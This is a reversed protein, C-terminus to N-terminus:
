RRNRMEIYGPVTHAGLLAILLWTGQCGFIALRLAVSVLSWSLSFRLMKTRGTALATLFHLLAVLPLLPASLEDVALWARGFLRGEFSWGGEVGELRCLYYGWCALAACGLVAGTFALGWRWATLPDRLRSVCVAGALAVAIALELWPLPLPVGIV